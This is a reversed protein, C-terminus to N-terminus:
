PTDPRKVYFGDFQTKWTVGGDASTEITQRVRGDPQLKLTTRDLLIRGGALLEGQFRIGSAEVAISHKEKVGGLATATDTVWVQHWRKTDPQYYFLSRGEGTPESWSEQLACGKLIRDIRNAGLKEGSPSVVDWTGIWFDLQHFEAATCGGSSKVYTGDFASKWTKGGDMSVDWYQRVRGDPSPTWTIRNIAGNPGSPSSQLRMHGDAFEGSLRLAEGGREMWSQHWKRDTRDYFNLSTGTNGSASTWSEVIACGGEAIRIVNHGARQGGPTMVDWEGLWFDFQHFAADACPQAPQPADAGAARGGILCLMTCAAIILKM